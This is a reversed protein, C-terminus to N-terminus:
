PLVHPEALNGEKTLLPLRTAAPHNLTGRLPEKYIGAFREKNM